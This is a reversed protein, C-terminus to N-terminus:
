KGTSILYSEACEIMERTIVARITGVPPSIRATRITIESADVGCRGIIGLPNSMQAVHRQGDTEM